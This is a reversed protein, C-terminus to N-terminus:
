TAWTLKEGPNRWPPESVHSTNLSMVFHFVEVFGINMPIQWNSSELDNSWKKMYGHNGPTGRKKESVGTKNNKFKPGGHIAKLSGLPSTLDQQTRPLCRQYSLLKQPIVDTDSVLPESYAKHLYQSSYISPNIVSCVDSPLPVVKFQFYLRREDWFGVM